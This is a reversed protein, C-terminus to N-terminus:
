PAGEWTHNETAAEALDLADALERLRNAIEHGDSWYRWYVRIAELGRPDTNRRASLGLSTRDDHSIGIMWGRTDNM